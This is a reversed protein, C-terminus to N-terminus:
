EYDVTKIPIVLAHGSRYVSHMNDSNWEPTVDAITGVISNKTKLVSSTNFMYIAKKQLHKLEGVSSGSMYGCRLSLEYSSHELEIKELEAEGPIYQSLLLVDDAEMVDPLEITSIETDFMGGGVSRDSGIGNEGLLEFLKILEEMVKPVAALICYLGCDKAFFKWEFFFPTADSTGDRSVTVRQHVSTTYPRRFDTANQLSVLFEDKFQEETIAPQQGAIIKDWISHEIFKIKKVKKRILDANAGTFSLHGAPKPLYYNDGCYPFASSVAFSNLFEKVGKGNNQQAYLSALAGSITDSYLYPSATDYESRGAGIHLPSMNKFKVITYRAM